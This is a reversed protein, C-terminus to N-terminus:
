NKKSSIKSVSNRVFERAEDTLINITLGYYMTDASMDENDKFIFTVKIRLELWRLVNNSDYISTRYECMSFYIEMEENKAFCYHQPNNLKSLTSLINKSYVQEIKNKLNHILRLDKLPPYTGSSLIYAHVDVGFMDNMNSLQTKNQSDLLSM